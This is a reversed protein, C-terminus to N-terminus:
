TSAELSAIRPARRPLSNQRRHVGVFASLVAVCTTWFAQDANMPSLFHKAEKASGCQLFQRSRRRGRRVLSGVSVRWPLTTPQPRSAAGPYEQRRTDQRDQHNVKPPPWSAPPRRCPTLWPHDRKPNTSGPPTACGSLSVLTIDCICSPSARPHVRIDRRPQDAKADRLSRARLKWARIAPTSRITVAQTENVDQTQTPRLIRCPSKANKATSEKNNPQPACGNRGTDTVSVRM